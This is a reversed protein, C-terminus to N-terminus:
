ILRLPILINVPIDETLPPFVFKRIKILYINSEKSLIIGKFAFIFDPLASAPKLFPTKSILIEWFWFTLALHAFTKM